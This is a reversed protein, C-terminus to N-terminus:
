EEHYRVKKVEKQSLNTRQIITGVDTDNEIMKEARKVARAHPLKENQRAM